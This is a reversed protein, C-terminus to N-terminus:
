YYRLCGFGRPFGEGTLKGVLLCVKRKKDISLDETNVDFKKLFEEVMQNYAEESKIFPRDPIELTDFYKFYKQERRIHQYVITDGNSHIRGLTFRPSRNKEYSCRLFVTQHRIRIDINRPDIATFIVKNNRIRSQAMFYSMLKNVRSMSARSDLWTIDANDIFIVKNCPMKGETFLAELTLPESPLGNLKLNSIVRDYKGSKLEKVIQIVAGLTRGSGISGYYGVVNGLSSYKLYTRNVIMVRKKGKWFNRRWSM